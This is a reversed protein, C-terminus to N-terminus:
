GLAGCVTKLLASFFVKNVIEQVKEAAANKIGKETVLLIKSILSEKRVLSAPVNGLIALGKMTLRVQQFKSGERPADQHTIFGENSLFDIAMFGALLADFTEDHSTGEPISSMMLDNVDLEVPTPFNMYLMQFVSLSFRNFIDINKPVPM